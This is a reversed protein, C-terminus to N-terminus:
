ILIFFLIEMKKSKCFDTLLGFNSVCLVISIAFGFYNFVLYISIKSGVWNTTIPDSFITFVMPGWFPKVWRFRKFVGM